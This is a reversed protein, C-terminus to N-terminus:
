YWRPLGVGYRRSSRMWGTPGGPTTWRTQTCSVGPCLRAPNLHCLPQTPSPPGAWRSVLPGPGPQPHHSSHHHRQGAAPHDQFVALGPMCDASEWSSPVGPPCVPFQPGAELHVANLPHAKLWHSKHHSVLIFCLLSGSLCKERQIGPWFAWPWSPALPGTM